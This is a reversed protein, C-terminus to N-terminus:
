LVQNVDGGAGKLESLLKDSVVQYAGGTSYSHVHLDTHKRVSPVAM